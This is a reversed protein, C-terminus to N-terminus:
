AGAEMWLSLLQLFERMIIARRERERERMTWGRDDIAQTGAGM